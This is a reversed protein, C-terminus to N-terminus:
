SVECLSCYQSSNIGPCVPKLNEHPHRARSGRYMVQIALTCDCQSPWCSGSPPLLDPVTGMLVPVLHSLWLWASVGCLSLALLFPATGDNSAWGAPGPCTHTCRPDCDPEKQSPFSGSWEQIGIPCGLQTEISRRMLVLTPPGPKGHIIWESFASKRSNSTQKSKGVPIHILDQLTTELGVSYYSSIKKLRHSLSTKGAESAVPGIQPWCWCESTM